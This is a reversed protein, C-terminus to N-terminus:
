KQEAAEKDYDEEDAPNIVGSGTEVYVTGSRKTEGGGGSGFGGGFGGWSLGGWGM